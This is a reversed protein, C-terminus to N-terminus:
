VSIKEGFLYNYPEPNFKKLGTNPSFTLEAFYIKHNVVFFDVRVFEFLSALKEALSVMQDYEPIKPLIETVYSYLHFPLQEYNRGVEFRHGANDRIQTFEVIGHFTFFSYEWLVEGNPVINKEILIKRPIDCYQKENRYKSFDTFFWKRIKKQVDKKNKKHYILNFGSGHNLKMVAGEEISEYDIEDPSDYVANLPIEYIEGIVSNVYERVKWKDAYEALKKFEESSKKIIIKESFTKPNKYDIFRKFLRFFEFEIAAPVYIHSLIKIFLELIKNKLNILM